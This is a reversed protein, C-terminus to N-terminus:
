HIEHHSGFRCLKECMVGLAPFAVWDLELRWLEALLTLASLERAQIAEYVGNSYFFMQGFADGVSLGELSIRAKQLPTM